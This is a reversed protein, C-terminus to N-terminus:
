CIEKPFKRQASHVIITVVRYFNEEHDDWMLLNKQSAGGAKLNKHDCYRKKNKNSLM